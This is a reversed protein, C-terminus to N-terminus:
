EKGPQNGLYRKKEGLFSNAFRMAKPVAHSYMSWDELSRLLAGQRRLEGYVIKKNKTSNSTGERGRGRARPKALDTEASFSRACNADAAKRRSLRNPDFRGM